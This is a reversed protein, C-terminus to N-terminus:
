LREIQAQSLERRLILVHGPDTIVPMSPAFDNDDPREAVFGLNGLHVDAMLIGAELYEGFARGVQYAVNENTMEEAIRSAIHVLVAFKNSHRSLKSRFAQFTDFSMGSSKYDEWLDDGFKWVSESEVSKMQDDIWGWFQDAAADTAGYNQDFRKKKELYLQRVFGGMQQWAGLYEAFIKYQRCLYENGPYKEHYKDFDPSPWEGCFTNRIKGVFEAAERWLVFVPRGKHTAEVGFIGYYRVIGSPDIGRARLEGLLSVFHAETEDTTIKFVTDNQITRYVVGYHGAGLEPDLVCVGRSTPVDEMPMPLGLAEVKEHIEDCVQAYIKSAWPPNQTM